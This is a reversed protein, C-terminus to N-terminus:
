ILSRVEQLLAGFQEQAQTSLTNSLANFFGEHNNRLKEWMPSQFFLTVDAIEEPTLNSNIIPELHSGITSILMATAKPTTHNGNIQGFLKYLEQTILSVLKGAPTASPPAHPCHLKSVPLTDIAQNAALLVKLLPEKLKLAMTQLTQCEAVALTKFLCMKLRFSLRTLFTTQVAEKQLITVLVPAAKKCRQLAVAATAPKTQADVGNWCGLTCFVGIAMIHRFQMIFVEM